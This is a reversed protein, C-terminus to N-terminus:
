KIGKKLRPSLSTKKLFQNVRNRAKSAIDIAQRTFPIDAIKPRAVDKFLINKQKTIVPLAKEKIERKTPIVPTESLIPQLEEDKSFYTVRRQEVPSVRLSRNFYSRSDPTMAYPMPSTSSFRENTGYNGLQSYCLDLNYYSALSEDVIDPSIPSENRITSPTKITNRANKQSDTRHMQKLESIHSPKADAIHDISVIQISNAATSPISSIVRKHLKSSDLLFRTPIFKLHRPSQSIAIVARGRNTPTKFKSSITQMYPLLIEKAQRLKTKKNHERLSSDNKNNM